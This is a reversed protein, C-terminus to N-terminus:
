LSARKTDHLKQTAIFVWASGSLILIWQLATIPLLTQLMCVDHTGATCTTLSLTCAHGVPWM